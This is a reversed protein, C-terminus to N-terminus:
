NNPNLGGEPEGRGALGAIAWAPLYGRDWEAPCVLDLAAGAPGGHAATGAGQCARYFPHVHRPDVLLAQEWARPWAAGDPLPRRPRHEDPATTAPPTAAKRARYVLLFVLYAGPHHDRRLAQAILGPQRDYLRGCAALVRRQAQVLNCVTAVERGRPLRVAGGSAGRGAADLWAAYAHRAARPLGDPARYGDFSLAEWLLPLAPQRCRFGDALAGELAASGVNRLARAADQWSAVPALRRALCVLGRLPEDWTPLRAALYAALAAHARARRERQAAGRARRPTVAPRRAHAPEDELPYGDREDDPASALSGSGAGAHDASLLDPGTLSDAEGEAAASRGCYGEARLYALQDPSLRGRGDLYSVLQEVVKM